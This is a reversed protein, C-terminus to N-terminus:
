QQEGSWGWASTEDAHRGHAWSGSGLGDSNSTCARGKELAPMGLQTQITVLHHKKVVLFGVAMHEQETWVSQQGLCRLGATVALTNRFLCKITFACTHTHVWQASWM